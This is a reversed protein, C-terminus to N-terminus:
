ENNTKGDPYESKQQLQNGLVEWKSNPKERAFLQLYKASDPLQYWGEILDIFYNPKKSHKTKEKQYVSEIKKDPSPPSLKGKTGILLLEHRGKLWKGMTSSTAKIKDWCINTKYEFGWGKMVELSETLKPNTSWLFLVADKNFFDDKLSKEEIKYDIIQEINLTEYDKIAVDAYQAFKYKWPPDAYIVPYRGKGPIILITEQPIRNLIMNLKPLRIEEKLGELGERTFGKYLRNWRHVNQKVLGMDKYSPAVTVGQSRQYEGPGQKDMGDLLEAMKYYGFIEGWFIESKAKENKQIKPHMKMIKIYKIFDNMQEVTTVEMLFSDIDEGLQVPSTKDDYSILENM